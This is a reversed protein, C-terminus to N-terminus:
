GRPLADNKVFRWVGQLRALEDRAKDQSSASPIDWLHIKGDLGGAALTKGDPSFALSWVGGAHGRLPAIDKGTAIDLLRIEPERLKRGPPDSWPERVWALTKGDPALAARWVVCGDQQFTALNKGTAVEWLEITRAGGSVLTKGDPRFAVSNALAFMNSFCGEGPHGQLTAIRKDTALDWLQVEGTVGGGDKRTVPGGGVALKKGNPSFAVCGFGGSQPVEPHLQFTATTKGTAVEWLRVTHDQSSSALTKGDPRFAVGLVVGSTTKLTATLRGTAVDWLKLEATGLHPGPGPENADRGGASALTKGDPSFAVNWVMGAHGKLTATVRGTALDWLKVAGPGRLDSGGQASALAKGDPSFALHVPVSGAELTRSL